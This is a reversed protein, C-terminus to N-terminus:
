VSPHEKIRLEEYETPEMSHEEVWEEGMEELILPKNLGGVRTRIRVQVHFTENDYDGEGYDDVPMKSKVVEKLFGGVKKGFAEMARFDSLLDIAEDLNLSAPNINDKWNDPSLTKTYPSKYKKM